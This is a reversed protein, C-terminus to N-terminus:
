PVLRSLDSKFYVDAVLAEHPLIESDLLRFLVPVPSPNEHSNGVSTRGNRHCARGSGRLESPQVVDVQFWWTTLWGRIWSSESGERVSQTLHAGKATNCAFCSLALNGPEYLRSPDIRDIDWSVYYGSRTMLRLRKVEAITLGCYTCCDPQELYWAVFEQESM